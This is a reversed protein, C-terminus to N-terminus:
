LGKNRKNGYMKTDAEEIMQDLSGSYQSSGTSVSIPIIKEKHSFKCNEIYEKIRKEIGEATKIDGVCVIGFEDGGVRYVNDGARINKTLAEALTALAYDGVQHGYNDNLVKFKDLDIQVYSFAYNTNRSAKAKEEELHKKLARKNYVNTLEDILSLSELKNTEDILSVVIKELRKKTPKKIEPKKYSKKM